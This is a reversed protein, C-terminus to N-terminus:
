RHLNRELTHLAQAARLITAPRRAARLRDALASFPEAGPLRQSLAKDIGAETAERSPQRPLALTRAIRERMHDAYPRTVLHLRRTRRILGAANEVLPRKGFPIARAAALPPGFRLFARWGAVLAALLLCLTAALYPPTFALTLLNASRGLGNLTVDFVVVRPGDGLAAAILRDALLANERRAMGYNNLLDPEFVVILPYLATEDGGESATQLAAQELMPYFGDDQLYAALIGGSRTMVLPELGPGQGTEVTAPAPLVGSVGRAAWQSSRPGIDVSVEDLFGEWRPALTGGLTVWGRKAQPTGSPVAAALWKPTIVITPGVERRRAVIAEIESGAANQPPTLILLGPDDLSAPSRSLAIRHGREELFEALAAYGALGKSGAHSGGNNTSGSAVGSGIMWLLMVFAVAGFLVLALVTKVAFPNAPGRRV